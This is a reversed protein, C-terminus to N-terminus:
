VLSEVFREANLSVNFRRITFRSLKIVLLSFNVKTGITTALDNCTGISRSIETVITM